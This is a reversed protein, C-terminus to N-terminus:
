AQNMMPMFMPNMPYQMMQQPMMQQPMMPQQMMMPNFQMMPMMHQQWMMPQMAGMKNLGNVGKQKKGKTKTDALQQKM